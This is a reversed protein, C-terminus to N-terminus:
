TKTKMLKTKIMFGVIGGIFLGLSIVQAYTLNGFIINRDGRFFEILFRNLGYFMWFIFFMREKSFDFTELKYMALLVFFMIVVEYIQAPHVKPYVVPFPYLGLAVLKSQYDGTATPPYLSTLQALNEYGMQRLHALSDPIPLDALNVYPSFIQSIITLPDKANAYLHHLARWEAMWADSDESFTVGFFHSTPLGYADGNLFCSFRSICLGLTLPIMLSDCWHLFNVKTIQCYVWAGFATGITGGLIAFGGTATFILTPENLFAKTDWFLFHFVRAFIMGSLIAYAWAKEYWDLAYGAKLSRHKQYFFGMILIGVAWHGEYGRFHFIWFDVNVPYM